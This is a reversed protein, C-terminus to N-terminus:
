QEPAILQTFQATLNRLQTSVSLMFYVTASTDTTVNDPDIKEEQRISQMCLNYTTYPIATGVCKLFIRRFLRWGM